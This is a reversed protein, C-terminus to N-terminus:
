ATRKFMYCTIYPALNNHATGSGATGTNAASSGGTDATSVGGTTGTVNHTHAGTNSTNGTSPSTNNGQAANSGHGGTGTGRGFTHQHDGASAATLSGSDHTHAMSHTHAMGHMHSPLEAITLVHTKAGGTKEVTNFETQSIDVGTPVRGGGWAIWTGGLFTGPNTNTVSMYIAGVPHAALLAASVASSIAAATASSVPKDVDSTNDVNSLGIDTKDLVVVGTKGNVSAVASASPAVAYLLDNWPTVGDGLKAKRTDTEWGVEGLQLVPNASTWNASLDRRQNIHTM